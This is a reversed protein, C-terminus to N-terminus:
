PPGIKAFSILDISKIILFLFFGTVQIIPPDFTEVFIFIRDLKDSIASLRTITPAMAFLKRFNFPMLTPAERISFPESFLTM